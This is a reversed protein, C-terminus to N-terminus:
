SQVLRVAVDKANMQVVVVQLFPKILRWLRGTPRSMYKIYNGINQLLQIRAYSGSLPRHESSGNAASAPSLLASSVPHRVASYVTNRAGSPLRLSAFRRPYVPTKVAERTTVVQTTLAERGTVAPSAPPPPVPSVARDIMPINNEDVPVGLVKKRRFIFSTSGLHRRVASASTAIRGASGTTSAPSVTVAVDTSPASGVVGDTGRDAKQVTEPGCSLPAVEAATASPTRRPRVGRRALAPTSGYSAAAIRGPMSSARELPRRVSLELLCKGSGGMVRSPVDGDRLSFNEVHSKFTTSKARHMFTLHTAM